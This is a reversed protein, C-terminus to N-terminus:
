QYPDFNVLIEKLEKRSLGIYDATILSTSHGLAKQVIAINKGQSIYLQYAWSKRTTHNSFRVFPCVSNVVDQLYRYAQSKDISKDKSGDKRNAFILKDNPQLNFEAIYSNVLTQLRDNLIVAKKKGTKKEIIETEPTTVDAVSLALTDSIRYGLGISLEWLIQYKPHPQKHHKGNKDTFGDKSKFVEAIRFLDAKDMIPTSATAKKIEKGNRLYYGDKAM